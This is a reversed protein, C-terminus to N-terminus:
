FPGARRLRWSIDMRSRENNPAKSSMPRTTGSVLQLLEGENVEM